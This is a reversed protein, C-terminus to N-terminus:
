AKMFNSIYVLNYASAITICKDFHDIGDNGDKETLDMFMAKLKACCRRLMDVDNRSSLEEKFSFHDSSHESYWVLIEESAKSKMGDPNCYNLDPLCSASRCGNTESHEM